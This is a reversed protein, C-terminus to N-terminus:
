QYCEQLIMQSYYGKMYTKALNTKGCQSIYYIFVYDHPKHGCEKNQRPMLVTCLQLLGNVMIYLAKPICAKIYLHTPPLPKPGDTITFM